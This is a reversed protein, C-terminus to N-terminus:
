AVSFPPTKPSSEDTLLLNKNEKNYQFTAANMAAL